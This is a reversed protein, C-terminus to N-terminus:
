DAPTWERGDAGIRQGEPLDGVTPSDLGSRDRFAAHPAPEDDGSYGSTTLIAGEQNTFFTRGEGEVPWAYVCWLREALDANLRGADFGGRDREPLALGKPGPLFLRFRYGNREVSGGTVNRFMASLVPPDLPAGDRVGRAGSLEAFTGHEGVGNRNEDARATAQFHSQTAILMRLTAIAAVENFDRRATSLPPETRTADSSPRAIVAVVLVAACAGALFGALFSPRHM